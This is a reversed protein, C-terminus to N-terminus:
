FFILSPNFLNFSIVQSKEPTQLILFLLFWNVMALGLMRSLCYEPATVVVVAAGFIVSVPAGVFSFGKRGKINASLVSKSAHRKFFITLYLM